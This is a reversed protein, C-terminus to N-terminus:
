KSHLKPASACEVCIGRPRWITTPEYETGDTSTSLIITDPVNM